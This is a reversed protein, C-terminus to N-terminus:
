LREHAGSRPWYKNELTFAKLIGQRYVWERFVVVQAKEFLSGTPIWLYLTCAEDYAEDESEMTHDESEM